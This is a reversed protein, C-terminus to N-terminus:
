PAFIIPYTVIVAGGEPKPFQMPKFADVTCAVADPSALTTASTSVPQTVNGSRDVTFRVVVRGELDPKAVRGKAYCARLTEYSQRIVRRLVPRSIGVMTTDSSMHIVPVRHPDVKPPTLFVVFPEDSPPGDVVVAVPEASPQPPPPTSEAPTPTPTPLPAIAVETRPKDAGGCAIAFVLLLARKVVLM